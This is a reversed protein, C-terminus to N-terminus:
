QENNKRGDQKNFLNLVFFTPIAMFLWYLYENKIEFFDILLTSCIFLLLSLSKGIKTFATNKLIREYIYYFSFLLFTTLLSKPNLINLINM